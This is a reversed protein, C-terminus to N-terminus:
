RGPPPPPPPPPTQAPGGSYPNYGGQGPGPPAPPGAPPGSPPGAPPQPRGPPAAPPNGTRYPNDPQAARGPPYPAQPLGGYGPQPYGSQQPVPAQPYPTAQQPPLYPQQRQDAPGGPGPRGVTLPPLTERKASANGFQAVLLSGLFGFVAGEVLGLLLGVLVNGNISLGAGVADFGFVSLNANVSVGAVLLLLATTVAMAAGLRLGATGAERLSSQPLVPRPTRVAAVVGVALLMLAVAVPLLWVRGDLQGLRSLTISQGSGGKLLTNVPSPLFGTLPGSAKGTLPVAMGLIVALFVGNPTGLLAGGITKGGGNSSLGMAIGALAGVLVTGLLVTLVASLVPRVTRRLGEWGPPLPCRRSALVAVALVVLVWLLGLGLTPLLDVRFGVTPNTNGGILGGLGGLPDGGGSGSGGGLLGGLGGLPDSGGGSGAGGKGGGTLSSVKVAVAGNGAWALIGLLLLFAAVAGAARAALVAPHLVPLRYLPRVFLWGLVVAGVLSVGLPMIGIAGNAAAADIGFVSVDGSPSIQGGVAMAVMAATLSGLKAFADIGLLHIGLATVAGMAVFAWSAAVAASVMGYVAGDRLGGGGSRGAAAPGQHGYVTM